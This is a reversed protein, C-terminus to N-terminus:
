LWNEINDQMAQFGENSVEWEGSIAMRLSENLSELTEKLPQLAKDFVSTDLKALDPPIKGAKKAEILATKIAKKLKDM